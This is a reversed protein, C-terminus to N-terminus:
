IEIFEYSHGLKKIFELVDISSIATTADNRLPPFNLYQSYKLSSEIWVSIKHSSEKAKNLNILSFLSLPQINDFKMLYDESIKNTSEKNSNSFIYNVTDKEAHVLRNINKKKKIDKLNIIGEYNCLLLIYENNRAKLLITKCFIGPISSKLEHEKEKDQFILKINDHYKTFYNIGFEELKDYLKKEIENIKISNRPKIRRDSNEDLLPKEAYFEEVVSDSIKRRREQIEMILPILKELLLMKMEGCSIEGKTFGLRIKELKEDDYELYKLYQYSIDKEPDGGYKRHDSLTGDGGGGSHAYKMIKHKITKEDDSLFITGENNTSSSMKGEMGMLPPVFKSMINSPKPLNMKPSLDRSLRFYPDQDIAHPILCFAPRNKFIHPYSTYYAAATQYFPWNYMAVSNEESFGFIKKVENLNTLSKMESALLEFSKCRLRYERNSFIFTRKSDFGCAIIDKSNEIGYRYIEEFNKQKIACKEDDSIQIVLPCNLKDHLWKTFIFPVLHGLHMSNSTPGRGTYLFVQDENELSSLISKLGRHTYFIGRKVWPHVEGLIKEMRSIIESDILETGFQKVLRNYDVRGEVNWPTVQETIIDSQTSKDNKIDEQINHNTNRDTAFNRVALKNFYNWYKHKGFIKLKIMCKNLLELYINIILIVIIIFKEM